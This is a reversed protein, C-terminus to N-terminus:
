TAHAPSSRTGPKATSLGSGSSKNSKKMSPEERAADPAQMVSLLEQILAVTLAVTPLKPRVLTAREDSSRGRTWTLGRPLARHCASGESTRVVLAPRACFGGLREQFELGLELGILGPLGREPAISLRLEDLETSAAALRGLPKVVLRAERRLRQQVRGLFRRSHDLADLPMEGARGTCFLPLLASAGLLLCAGYYPSTQFLRAAIWTTGALAACLLLLGQARGADLWAGDLAAPRTVPALVSDDLAQWQGPGRLAASALPARHAAFAIACLLALAAWSPAWGSLAALTAAALSLGAAGARYPTKWDIWARPSCSRLASARGVRWAKLAVLLAYVMGALLSWPLRAPAAGLALGPGESPLTAVVRAAAADAPEAQDSEPAGPFLRRDLLVGWTIAEDRAVHARILELEDRDRSRRLTSMVIGYNPPTNEGAGSDEPLAEPPLAAAATRLVLTVSDVGDDFRPGVWRLESRQGDPLHRVLGRESLLTRYAFKLIFSKGRFGQRLPVAVDVHGADARVQVPLPLSTALGGQVRTITADPLPEADSDIGDLSLGKLPGGRVEIALEYRVTASGDPALEIATKSSAIRKEIWAWSRVSSTSGCAIIGLMLLRRFLRRM